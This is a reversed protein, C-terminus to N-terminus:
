RPCATRTATSAARACSRAHPRSSTPARGWAGGGRCTPPPAWLHLRRLSRHGGCRPLAPPDTAIQLLSAMAPPVTWHRQRPRPWHPMPSRPVVAPASWWRRCTTRRASGPRPVQRSAEELNRQRSLHLPRPRRAAAAMGAHRGPGRRHRAGGSRRRRGRDGAHRRRRRLAPLGAGECLVTPCSSTSGAWPPRCRAAVAGRGVRGTTSLGIALWVALLARSRVAWGETLARPAIRDGRPPPPALSRQDQLLLPYRHSLHHRCAPGSQGAQPGPPRWRAPATRRRRPRDM